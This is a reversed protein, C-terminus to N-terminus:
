LSIKLRTKFFFSDYITGGVTIASFRTGSPNKIIALYENIENLGNTKFTLTEGAAFTSKITYDTFLASVQLVHEGEEVAQFPFVVFSNECTEVPDELFFTKKCNCSIM